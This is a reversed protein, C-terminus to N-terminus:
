GRRSPPRENFMPPELGMARILWRLSQLFGAQSPDFLPSCDALRCRGTMLGAAFEMCTQNQCQGCNTAPLRKYIETAGIGQRPQRDPEVSDRHVWAECYFDVATRVMIWLDLLDDARSIVFGHPSFTILRHGEEFTLVPIDPRYAGGKILAAMTPILRTLSKQPTAEIRIKRPDTISPRVAVIRLGGVIELWEADPPGAHPVERGFPGYEMTGGVPIRRKELGDLLIELGSTVLICPAALGRCFEPPYLPEWAAQGPLPVTLGLEFSPQDPFVVIKAM